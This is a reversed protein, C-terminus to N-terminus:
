GRGCRHGNEDPNTTRNDRLDYEYPATITRGDILDVSLHERISISAKSSMGPTITIAIHNLARESDHIM